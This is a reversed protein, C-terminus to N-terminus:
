GADWLPHFFRDMTCLRHRGHTIHMPRLADQMDNVAVLAEPIAATGGRLEVEDRVDDPTSILVPLTDDPPRWSKPNNWVCALHWPV